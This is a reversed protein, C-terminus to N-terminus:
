WYGLAGGALYARYAGFGENVLLLPAVYQFLGKRRLWGAGRGVLKNTGCSLVTATVGLAGRTLGDNFM